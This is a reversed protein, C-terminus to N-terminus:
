EGQKVIEKIQEDSYEKPDLDQVIVSVNDFYSLARYRTKIASKLKDRDLWIVLNTFYNSLIRLRYTAIESGYLPMSIFNRAIRIASIFDECLVLFNNGGIYVNFLDCRGKSDMIDFVTESSGSTLYKPHNENKGFYRSQCFLLNGNPGFVPFVLSQKADSWGIKCRAIEENTVGYKRL